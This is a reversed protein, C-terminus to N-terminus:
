RALNNKVGSGQCPVDKVPITDLPARQGQWKVEAQDIIGRKDAQALCHTALAHGHPSGSTSRCLCPGREENPRSTINPFLFLSLSFQDLTSRIRYGLSYKSPFHPKPNKTSCTPTSTQVFNLCINPLSILSNQPNKFTLFRYQNSGITIINDIKPITITKISPLATEGKM